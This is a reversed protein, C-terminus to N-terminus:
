WSQHTSRDVTGDPNVRVRETVTQRKDNIIVTSTSISEQVGNYSGGSSSTSNSSYSTVYGNQQQQQQQQLQQQQPNNMNTIMNPFSSQMSVMSNMANMHQGMGMGFSDGFGGQTGAMGAMNMGGFPHGFGSNNMNNGNGNGNTLPGRGPQYDENHFGHCFEDGFFQQFVDFPDMFGCGRQGGSRNFPNFPGGGGGGFFGAAFSDNYQQPQQQQQSRRGDPANGDVSGYQDYEARKEPDGLIEYANGIKTFVESCKDKQEQSSQKDPHYKLALKRYSAKIQSQSATHLLDLTAYPDDQQNM